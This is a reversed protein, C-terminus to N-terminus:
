SSSSRAFVHHGWPPLDPHLGRSFLDDGDRDSRVPSLLDLFRVLKNQDEIGTQFYDRVSRARGAILCDYLRKDYTYDLGQQQLTRELDWNVEAMFCFLPHKQRVQRIPRPWFPQAPRRWTREFVEPLVLMAMDCRAGDCLSPSLPKRMPVGGATLESRKSNIAPLKFERVVFSCQESKPVLESVAKLGVQM